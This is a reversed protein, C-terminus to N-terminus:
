LLETNRKQVRAEPSKKEQTMSGAARGVGNLHKKFFFATKRLRLRSVESYCEHRIGANERIRTCFDKVANGGASIEGSQL